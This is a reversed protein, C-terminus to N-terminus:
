GRLRERRAEALTALMLEHLHGNSSVVEGAFPDFARGDVASVRGGAEEVILGGAAIDWPHIKEEWYGDFRGAAVYCLDLAASGLRRVAQAQELFLAFGRVHRGRDEGVSYPFGTCLLADVLTTTPSVQLRRGNLRAGEGREATFLEETNPDYVVGLAVRGDVELAISVCFFQLGHAFNTTGDLPDIIWRYRAASSAVGASLEEGLVDHHPFREAILQRFAREVAVDAATVLDIRGKKHVTVDQRFYQLHLRGAALAAEVATALYIPDLALEPHWASRSASV